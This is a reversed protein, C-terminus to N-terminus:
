RPLLRSRNRPDKVGKLMAIAAGHSLAPAPSTKYVRAGGVGARKRVRMLSDRRRGGCNPVAEHKIMRVRDTM